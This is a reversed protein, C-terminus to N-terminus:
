SFKKLWWCLLDCGLLLDEIVQSMKTNHALALPFGAIKM